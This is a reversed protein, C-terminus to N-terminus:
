KLRDLLDDKKSRSVNVSKGNSLVVYGGDGRVYRKLHLLNILHSNHIRVCNHNELLTEVEKLTKSILISGGDELHLRTYNGDAEGHVIHEAKIMELGALTPLAINPFNNNQNHINELLYELQQRYTEASLGNKNELRSRVQSVASKLEEKDIPKLLYDAASVKFAKIAFQDYATTFIVEFKEDKVAELVEFGNMKPMEIDLFILDPNQDRISKVACDGDFCEGTIEVEPCYRELYLRLTEVCHPEDDIILAKM